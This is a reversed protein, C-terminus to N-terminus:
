LLLSAHRSLPHQLWHCDEKPPGHGTAISPRVMTEKRKVETVEKVSAEPTSPSSKVEEVESWCSM